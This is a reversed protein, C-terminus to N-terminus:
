ESTGMCCDTTWGGCGGSGGSSGSPTAGRQGAQYAPAPKRTASIPVSMATPTIAAAVPEPLSSSSGAKVIMAVSICLRMKMPVATRNAEKVRLGFGHCNPRRRAGKQGATPQAASPM